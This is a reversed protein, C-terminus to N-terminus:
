KDEIDFRKLCDQVRKALYDGAHAKTLASTPSTHQVQGDTLRLTFREKLYRSVESASDSYVRRVDASVTESTPLSTGPRLMEVEQRHLEDVVSEFPRCDQACRLALIACHRAPNCIAASTILNSTGNGNGLHDRYQPNHSPHNYKCDFRIVLKLFRGLGDRHREISPIYHHYVLSRWSEELAKLIAKDDYKEADADSLSNVGKRRKARECPPESPAPQRIASSSSPKPSSSS